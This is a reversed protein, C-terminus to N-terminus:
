SQIITKKRSYFHICYKNRKRTKTIEPNTTMEPISVLSVEACVVQQPSQGHIQECDQYPVYDCKEKPEYRQRREESCEIQKRFYSIMSIIFLKLHEIFSKFAFVKTLSTIKWRTKIPAFGVYFSTFAELKVM